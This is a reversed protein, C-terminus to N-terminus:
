YFDKPDELSAPKVFVRFKSNFLGYSFASTAIYDVYEDGPYYPSYPDDGVDLRGNHNTDM